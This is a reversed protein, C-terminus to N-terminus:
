ISKWILDFILTSAIAKIKLIAIESSVFSELIEVHDKVTFDTVVDVIYM